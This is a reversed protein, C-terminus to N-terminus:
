EFHPVEALDWCRSHKGLGLSVYDTDLVIPTGHERAARMLRQLRPREEDRIEERLQRAVRLLLQRHGGELLDRAADWAAENIDTATYLADVPASLALSAGGSFHRVCLEQDKWDVEDLLRRAETEWAAVVLAPALEGFEVDIVAGPKDWLLNPGTLRRSDLLRM